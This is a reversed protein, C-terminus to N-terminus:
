PSEEPLAAVVDGMFQVLRQAGERNLRIDSNSMYGQYFNAHLKQAAKYCNLLDPSDYEVAVSRVIHQRHATKAFLSGRSKAVATVAHSVAGWLKESSQLIDGAALERDSNALFELATRMHEDVTM